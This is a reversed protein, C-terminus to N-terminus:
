KKKAAAQVEDLRTVAGDVTTEGTFLLQSQRHWEEVEATSMNNHAISAGCCGLLALVVKASPSSLGSTDVKTSAPIAGASEFFIQMAAPAAFSKALAIALDQHPSFRTVAYGIGGAFPMRVPGEAAPTPAPMPFAGVKDAGLFEDFQKWHAVDSILGITHANEGRMFSEYEDMFKLTSNAGESYWGTKWTELWEAVVAKVPADSWHLTGAAWDAQQADTWGNAALASLFFDAGFGEKNGLAFCAVGAKEKIAACNAELEAWTAPAKEPDLGAKTYLDKNYYVMFGQISLPVAYVAGAADAFEGWGVVDNRIDAIAEDLKVFAGVREKAQSGGHVLVLDPGRSAAIATGLLTYYQDHPQMVYNVTVGPHAAEFDAKVKEYYPATVPDGSKWDWVTLTADEARAATTALGALAAAALLITRTKMM